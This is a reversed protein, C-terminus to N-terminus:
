EAFSGSCCQLMQTNINQKTTTTTSQAINVYMEKQKYIVGYKNAFITENNAIRANTENTKPLFNTHKLWAQAFFFFFNTPSVRLIYYIKDSVIISKM